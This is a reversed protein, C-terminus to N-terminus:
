PVSVLGRHSGAVRGDLARLRAEDSATATRGGYWVADFTATADRLDAALAPLRGGAERSLEAATRGPRPDLVGRQELERAVARLRERIAEAWEGQDAWQEARRRHDDATTQEVGFIADDLRASRRLMGVRAVVLVILAAVVALALLLGIAHGPAHSASAGLAKLLRKVIWLLARDVLSPDGRHYARKAVESRAAAAAGGRTVPDPPSGAAIWTLATV